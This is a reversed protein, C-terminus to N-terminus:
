QQGELLKQMMEKAQPALQDMFGTMARESAGIAAIQQAVYTSVAINALTSPTQGLHEALTRLKALMDPHLMIKVASTRATKLAM